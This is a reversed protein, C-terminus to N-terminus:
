KVESAPETVPETVTSSGSSAPDAPPFIVPVLGVKHGLEALMRECTHLRSEIGPEEENGDIADELALLRAMTDDPTYAAPSSTAPRPSSTAPEADGQPADAFTPHDYGVSRVYEAQPPTLERGHAPEPEGPLANLCGAAFSQLAVMGIQNFPGWSLRM